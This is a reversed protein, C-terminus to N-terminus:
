RAPAPLSAAVAQGILRGLVYAMLLGNGSSYGDAADGSIGAATGGGAYLNPVLRGDPRLVRGATDIKLGGQTHALAGVVRGAYYPPKLQKKLLTRGLDDHGSRVGENYVTVTRALVQPDLKFLRALDELRECYEFAGSAKSAMMTGTAEVGRHIEEDWIAIAVRGVQRNVVEAWESYGQDEREFRRGSSDVMIGGASVVGPNLRTGFGATVYGLGQFAGMHDLAAGADLGMQIGDGTNTSVGAYPADIMSPVWRAMMEPNAAFGGAALVVQEAHVRQLEGDSGAEVGIVLGDRIVLSRGANRDAFIVNPRRLIWERLAAVIPAGSRKPHAHMRPRSHGIWHTEPAFVLPVGIEDALWHVFVASERCVALAVDRDCQGHNKAIIDQAMLEPTDDTIGAERQFRTGAAQLMGGAIAANCPTSADKELVVIEVDPRLDAVTAAVSLGCAGGGVVAVSAELDWEM